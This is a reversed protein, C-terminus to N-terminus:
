NKILEIYSDFSLPCKQEFKRGFFSKTKTIDLLETENISSFNRLFSRSWDIYTPGNLDTLLVLEERLDMYFLFTIYCHEDPITGPYDFWTIYRKDETVIKTHKRNLISWQSSKQIQDKSIHKLVQNCRPFCQKQPSYNFYSYNEDLESYIHKFSKLPICSNSLFIFHKNNEDKLAEELLLNQAKIISMDGWKTEVCNKLKYNEFYDSPKDYKYHIYINYKNKDINQFYINWIDEHNIKDYILFCFAIKKM